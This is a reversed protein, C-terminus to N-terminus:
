CTDILRDVWEARILCRAADHVLVWDREAAGRRLLADLGNAVSQARTTGGCRVADIRAADGIPVHREFAADDPALVVLISALRSVQALAALTHAVVARGAVEVYQKPLAAGARSGSGACPLLAHCAADRIASM